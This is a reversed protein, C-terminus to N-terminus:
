NWVGQEHLRDLVSLYYPSIDGVPDNRRHRNITHWHDAPWVGLHTAWTSSQVSVLGDNAGEIDYVTSYSFRAFAPVLNRKRAASVSFCPVGPVDPVRENFQRAHETTLDLIGGVDIGLLGALWLGGCKRGVHDVCWDAYPTGHHPSTITVLAAVRDAMDLKSLMYRADLGGLSHGIVIVRENPRGLGDLQKLISQKLQEARHAISACPHVCPVILPHGRKRIAQDIGLFYQIRLWGLRLEDYGFLGHHLVVPIM